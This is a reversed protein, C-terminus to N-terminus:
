HMDGTIVHEIAGLFQMGLILFESWKTYISLGLGCTVSEHLVHGLVIQKTGAPHNSLSAVEHGTHQSQSLVVEDMRKNTNREIGKMLSVVIAHEPILGRFEVLAVRAFQAAIAVVM